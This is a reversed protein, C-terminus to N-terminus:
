DLKLNRVPTLDHSLDNLAAQILPTTADIGILAQLQTLKISKQVTTNLVLQFKWLASPWEKRVETEIRILNMITRMYREVQGNARHVDPIIFHYQINWEGLFKCVSLNHFNLVEM